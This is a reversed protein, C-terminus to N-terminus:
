KYLGIIEALVSNFEDPKVLSIFHGVEPILVVSEDLAIEDKSSSANINHLKGSYRQLSSPINVGSWKFMERMSSRAINADSNSMQNVISTILAPDASQTFMDRVMSETALKFNDEFPEMYQDIEDQSKVPNFSTYFSDVGVISIVKDGLLKAAEIAVLGGMSHGVLV